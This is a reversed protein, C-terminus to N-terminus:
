TSMNLLQKRSSMETSQMNMLSQELDNLPGRSRERTNKNSKRHTKVKIKNKSLKTIDAMEENLELMTERYSIVPLSNDKDLPIVTSSKKTEIMKGPKHRQDLKIPEYTAQKVAYKILERKIPPDM